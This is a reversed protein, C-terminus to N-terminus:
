PFFSSLPFIFPFPYFPVFLYLISLTLAFLACSSSFNTNRPLPFFVL